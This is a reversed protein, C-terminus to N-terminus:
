ALRGNQSAGSRPLDALTPTVRFAEPAANYRDYALKAEDLNLQARAVKCQLERRTFDDDEPKDAM